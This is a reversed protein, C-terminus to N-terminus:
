DRSAPATGLLAAVDPPLFRRAADRARAFSEPDNWARNRASPHPLRLFRRGATEATGFEPVGMGRKASLGFADTVRAGLLIFLGGPRAAVIRSASAEAEAPKWKGPGLLNLREFSRMYQLTSMGLILRCLRGGTAHAPLPYLAYKAEDGYPNQEGVIIPVM